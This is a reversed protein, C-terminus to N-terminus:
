LCIGLCKIEPLEPGAAEPLVTSRLNKIQTHAKDKTQNWERKRVGSQMVGASNGMGHRWPRHFSAHRVQAGPHRARNPFAM